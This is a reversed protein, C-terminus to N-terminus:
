YGKQLRNSCTPKGYTERLTFIRKRYLFRLTKLKEVKTNLIINQKQDKYHPSELEEPPFYNDDDNDKKRRESINKYINSTGKIM